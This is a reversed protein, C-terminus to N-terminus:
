GTKMDIITGTYAPNNALISIPTAHDDQTDVNAGGDVIALGGSAITAGGALVQLGGATVTAGDGLVLQGGTVHGGGASTLV